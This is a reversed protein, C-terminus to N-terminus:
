KSRRSAKNKRSNKKRAFEANKADISKQDLPLSELGIVTKGGIRVLNPRLHNENKSYRGDMGTIRDRSRGFGAGATKVGHEWGFPWFASTNGLEQLAVMASGDRRSANGRQRLLWGINSLGDSQSGVRNENALMNMISATRGQDCVIEMFKEILIAGKKLDKANEPKLTIRAGRSKKAEKHSLSGPVFDSIHGEHINGIPHKKGKHTTVMTANVKLNMSILEVMQEWDMAPLMGGEAMPALRLLGLADDSMSNRLAAFSILNFRSLANVRFACVDAFKSATQFMYNNWSGTILERTTPNSQRFHNTKETTKFMGPTGRKTVDYIIASAFEEASEDSPIYGIKLYGDPMISQLDEVLRDMDTRKILGSDSNSQSDGSMLVGHLLGAGQGVTIKGALLNQGLNRMSNGDVTDAGTINSADIKAHSIWIDRKPQLGRDTKETTDKDMVAYVSSKATAVDRGYLKIEVDTNGITTKGEPEGTNNHERVVKLFCDNADNQKEDNEKKVAYTKMDKILVPKTNSVAITCSSDKNKWDMATKKLDVKSFADMEEETM